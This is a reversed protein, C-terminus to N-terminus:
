RRGAAAPPQSAPDIVVPRGDVFVHKVVTKEAFLDGDTVLLNAVKGAEISGLRDAAGAIAAADITLARLAADPKLGAKVARAANKVFDKPEALGSSAFAFPVGAAALVAPVKPANARRRLVAVPEDAEPALFRSRVPYNLSFLVPVKQAALEAAVQDAELGGTIIPTLALERALSLVRRIEVATGAEFAVPLRRAVAQQLAALAPDHGFRGAAKVREGHEVERQYHAADLFAQRVFAIEGMLSAPYSGFGPRAPFSVHLAVPTRVVYRGAREDAVNGIQPEDPPVATVILSSRGKIMDGPPTALISTIGAAALRNLGSADAELCAAAEVQARLLVSRNARELELRTKADRATEAAPVSVGTSNGLDILGPYVTLGKGDFLAADPPPTVTAGVAAIVGGRVVVTGADIIAGTVTVIRAGTIAYVHPAAARGVVLPAAALLLALLLTRRVTRTM